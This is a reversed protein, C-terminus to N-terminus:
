RGSAAHNGAHGLRQAVAKTKTYTTASSSKTTSTPSASAARQSTATQTSNASAAIAQAGSSGTVQAAAVVQAQIPQATVLDARAATGGAASKMLVLVPLVSLLSRTLIASRMTRYRNKNKSQKTAM